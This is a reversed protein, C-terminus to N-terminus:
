LRIFKNRDLSFFFYIFFAETSLEDIEIIFFQSVEYSTHLPKLM